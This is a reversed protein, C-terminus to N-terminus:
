VSMPLPGTRSSKLVAGSAPGPGAVDIPDLRVM